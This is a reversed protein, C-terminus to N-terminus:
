LNQQSIKPSAQSSKANRGSIIHWILTAPLLCGTVSHFGSIWLRFGDDGCYYLGYGSAVMSSCLLVMVIATVRNRRQAWARQMHRPILVGLIVLSAMAAAGHVRLLWTELWHFQGDFRDHGEAYHHVALWIIGSFLLTGFVSYFWVNLRWSFRVGGNKM